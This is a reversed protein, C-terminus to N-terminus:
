VGLGKGGLGKGVTYWSQLKAELDGNSYTKQLM